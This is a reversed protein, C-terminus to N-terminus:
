FLNEFLHGSVEEFINKAIFWDSFNQNCFIIIHADDFVKDQISYLQQIEGFKVEYSSKLITSM